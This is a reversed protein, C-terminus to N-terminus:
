INAVWSVEGFMKGTVSSAVQLDSAGINGDPDVSFICVGDEKSVVNRAVLYPPYEALKSFNTSGTLNYGNLTLVCSKGSVCLYLESGALEYIKTSLDNKLNGVENAINQLTFKINSITISGNTYAMIYVDTDSTINIIQEYIGDSIIGNNRYLSKDDIAKGLAIESTNGTSGNITYSLKYTGKTAKCMKVWEIAFGNSKSYSSTVNENIDYAGLNENLKAVDHTLTNVSPIYPAYPSSIVGEEIQLKCDELLTRLKNYDSNAIGIYIIGSDSTTIVGETIYEDTLGAFNSLGSPYGGNVPTHDNILCYGYDSASHGTKNVKFAYTTNPKLQLSYNRYYPSSGDTPLSYFQALLDKDNFLNKGGAVESVKLNSLNSSLEEVAENGDITKTIPTALEYYLYVGKMANKFTTADTYSSDLAVLFSAISNSGWVGIAKDKSKANNFAYIDYKTSYPIRQHFSM